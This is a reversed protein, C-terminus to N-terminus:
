FEDNHSTISFRVKLLQIEKMCDARAKSDTMELLQVRKLAVPVQNPQFTARHVVSFQHKGIERGVKFQDLTLEEAEDSVLPVVGNM